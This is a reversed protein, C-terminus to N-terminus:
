AEHAAEWESMAAEINQQTQEHERSLSILEQEELKTSDALLQEIESLREEMDEIDQELLMVREKAERARKEEEKAARKIKAAATKTIDPELDTEETLREREKQELYDQWNGPYIKFQGESMEIVKTATKNIFYRDHSVILATGDFDLLANELVERSDMDLHNTPEDLLLLNSRGAMLKLLSLRGKEGGSLSSVSKFVDDGTFLFSALINRLESDDAGPLANRMEGIVTDRVDLDDMHQDYYGPEIGTGLVAEGELPELKRSIIRLLTTKGVGNPGILATKEGRLLSLGVGSFLPKGGFGMSLNEAKLVDNGGRETTNLKLKMKKRDGPAKDAFEMKSLLKERAKAKVFNKGGNIRGWAYYQEIIKKQRKLESQGQEYAKQELERREQRQEVFSSYNGNYIEVKGSILEGTHTCLQDLFWRDHSVIIVAGQWSKLYGELWAAAQTDLHNTPEDLLLLSPKQLLLKALALRSKQGGSLTSARQGYFGEGLGLGKLVGAIASKYGYGGAEEFEKTLRDYERSVKDWRERSESAEEMSHELQRLREEMAFAESFVELMTDWVSLDGEGDTEQALYGAINGPALSVEGGDAELEACIIRLLTTKGAGNPGVLGLRMDDTLTLSVDNLVNDAGYSKNINKLALIVM